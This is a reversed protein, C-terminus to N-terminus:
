VDPGFRVDLVLRGDGNGRCEGGVAVTDVAISCGSGHWAM